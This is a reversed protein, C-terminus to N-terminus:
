RSETQNELTARIELGLSCTGSKLLNTGDPAQLPVLLGGLVPNPDAM